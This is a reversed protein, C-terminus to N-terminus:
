KAAPAPTAVPPPTAAPPPSLKIVPVNTGAAANTRVVPPAGTPTVSIPPRQTVVPPTNTPALQPYKVLLAHQRQQAEQAGPSFGGATAAKVMKDYVELAQAPKGTAEYLTGLHLRAQDANPDSAYRRAFDDYKAIAENTKSQADLCVAVGYVAQPIWPSEPHAKAFAEFGAQAEAYQGQAFLFSVRILEARKGAATGSYTAALKQLKDATDPPVPESPHTPVRIASLAMSAALEQEKRHWSMTAIVGIVALVAASGIAVRKKNVELWGLFDYLAESKQTGSDM